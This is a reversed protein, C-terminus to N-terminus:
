MTYLVQVLLFVTCFSSESAASERSYTEGYDRLALTNFAEELCVHMGQAYYISDGQLGSFHVVLTDSPVASEFEVFEFKQGKIEITFEKKPYSRRYEDARQAVLDKQMRETMTGLIGHCSVIQGM